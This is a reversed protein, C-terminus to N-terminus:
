EYSMFYNYWYDFSNLAISLMRLMNEKENSSFVPSRKVFKVYDNIIRHSNEPNDAYEKLADILSNYIILFNTNSISRIALKNGSVLQNYTYHYLSDVYDLEFLENISDPIEVNPMINADRITVDLMKNHLVGTINYKRPIIVSQLDLLSDTNLTDMLGCYVAATQQKFTNASLQIKESSRTRPESDLTAKALRSASYGNFLGWLAGLGAGIKLGETKGYKWGVEAGTVVTAGFGTIDSTVITITKDWDNKATDQKEDDRTLICSMGAFSKNLEKLDHMLTMMDGDVADNEFVEEHSNCSVVFLVITSILIINKM